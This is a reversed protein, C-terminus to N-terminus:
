WRRWGMARAVNEVVNEKECVSATHRNSLCVGLAFHGFVRSSENDLREAIDVARRGHELVSETGGSTYALYAWNTHTWGLV